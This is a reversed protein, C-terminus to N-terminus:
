PVQCNIEVIRTAYLPSSGRRTSRDASLVRLQERQTMTNIDRKDLRAVKAPLEILDVSCGDNDHKLDKGRFGKLSESYRKM